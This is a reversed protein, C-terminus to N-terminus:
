LLNSPEEGLGLKKLTAKEPVGNKDWGHMEYYENLMANYKDRDIKSGRVKGLGDPAPEDYYRDVLMDDQRTLGERLNFLRELTYSRDAVNWIDLPSLELGTNYYLLRSWEEFNPYNPGLFVTHFKCIGLCDVAEYAMEQWLVQRAKGDYSTYDSNMPGDYPTPQGYVESLLSQPLGFLDIAARSRIHDSGRSSTAVGLALSPTSREDSHLNSMGKAHVLYKESGKGIMEAAKLPGEALIAGLGEKQAIREIMEIVAEDNGFRLKL